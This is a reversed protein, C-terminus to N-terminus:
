EDPTEGTVDAVFAEYAAELQDAAARLGRAAVEVAEKKTEVSFRLPTGPWEGVAVSLRSRVEVDVMRRTM